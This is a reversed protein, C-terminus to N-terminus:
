QCKITLTVGFVVMNDITKIYKIVYLELYTTLLGKGSYFAFLMSKAEM